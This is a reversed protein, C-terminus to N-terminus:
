SVKGLRRTIPNDPNTLDVKRYVQHRSYQELINRVTKIRQNVKDLEEWRDIWVFDDHHYKYCYAGLTNFESFMKQTSMFELFSKQHINEIYQRVSKFIHSPYIFPSLFMFEYDVNFGLVQETIAKWRTPNKRGDQHNQNKFNQDLREYNNKIIVPKNDIFLDEPKHEKIFIADSDLHLIFDTDDTFYKDAFMKIYQQSIYGSNMLKAEPEIIVDINKDLCWQHSDKCSLETDYVAVKSKAYRRCFMSVSKRNYKLFEIDKDFTVTLISVNM